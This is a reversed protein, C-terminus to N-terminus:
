RSQMGELTRLLNEKNEVVMGNKLELLDQPPLRDAVIQNIEKVIPNQAPKGYFVAVHGDKIGIYMNNAHERCLGDVVLSMVAEHGDFYEMNWGSYVNQMQEINLGILVENAKSHFTEEDNCKAYKIKQTLNTEATVKNALGSNATESEQAAFHKYGTFNAYYYCALCAAVVIGTIIIISSKTIKCLLLM